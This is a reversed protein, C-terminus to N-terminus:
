DDATSHGGEGDVGSKVLMQELQHQDSCSFEFIVFDLTQLLSVEIRVEHILHLFFFLFCFLLFQFFM